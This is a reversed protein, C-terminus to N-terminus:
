VLGAVFGVAAISVFTLVGFGSGFRTSAVGKGSEGAFGTKVSATTRDSVFLCDLRVSPDLVMSGNEGGIKWFLSLIPTEGLLAPATENVYVSASIKYSAVRTLDNSKPLTPNCNSTSNESQSIPKAASSGTLTLGHIQPDALSSCSSPFSSQLSSAIMSCIRTKASTTSHQAAATVARAGLDLICNSGLQSQCISSLHYMNKPEYFANNNNARTISYPTHSNARCTERSLFILIFTQLIWIPFEM